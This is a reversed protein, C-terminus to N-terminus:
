NCYTVVSGCLKENEIWGVVFTKDPNLIKVKSWGCVGDIIIVEKEQNFKLVQKSDMNANEYLMYEEGSYNRTSAAVLESYIWGFINKPHNVTQIKLWPTKFEIIDMMIGADDDSAKITWLIKGKPVERINTGTTDPDNLYVSPFCNDQAYLGLNFLIFAILFTVSFKM